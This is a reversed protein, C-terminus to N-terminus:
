RKRSTPLLSLKKLYNLEKEEVTIQNLLRPGSFTIVFAGIPALFFVAVACIKMVDMAMQLNENEPISKLREFALPALAAKFISYCKQTDRQLTGKPIWCVVVFLKEKWSFPAWYATGYTTICRAMIGLFICLTHLGFRPMNWFALDIDAGM